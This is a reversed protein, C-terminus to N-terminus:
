FDFRPRFFEGTMRIPVRFEEECADCKVTTEMEYGFDVSKRLADIYALDMGTLSELLAKREGLKPKEGNITLISREMSLSYVSEGVPVKLKEYRTRAEAEVARKDKIRLLRVGVESGNRPLKGAIPEEFDDTLDVIKLDDLSIKYEHVRGCEPCRGEVTYSEGYSHIRLKMLLFMRDMETLEEIKIGETVISESLVRDLVKDGNSGFIKKEQEFGIVKLDIPGAYVSDGLNLRGKSPLHVTTTVDAM